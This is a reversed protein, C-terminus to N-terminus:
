TIEWAKLLTYNQFEELSRVWTSEFEEHDMAKLNEQYDVITPFPYELLSYDCPLGLIPNKGLQNLTITREYTRIDIRRYVNYDQGVEYCVINPIDYFKFDDAIERVLKAYKLPKPIANRAKEWLKIIKYSKFKPEDGSWIAEFALHGFITHGRVKYYKNVKLLTVTNNYDRIEIQRIVNDDSDLEYYTETAGNEAEIVESILKDASSPVSVKAYKM